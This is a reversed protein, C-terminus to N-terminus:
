EVLLLGGFIVFQKGLGQVRERARERERERERCLAGGSDGARGGASWFIRRICMWPCIKKVFRTFGRGLSHEKEPDGPSPLCHIRRWRIGWWGRSHPEMMMFARIKAGLFGNWGHIASLHWWLFLVEVKCTPQLKSCGVFAPCSILFNHLKGVGNRDECSRGRLQM